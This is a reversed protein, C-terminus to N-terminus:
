DAYLVDTEFFVPDQDVPNGADGYFYDYVPREDYHHRWGNQSSTSGFCASLAVSAFALLLIRSM